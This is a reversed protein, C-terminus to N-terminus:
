RVGQHRDPGQRPRGARERLRIRDPLGLRPPRPRASEVARRDADREALRPWGRRRRGGRHGHSRVEAEGGHDSTDPDPRGRTAARREVAVPCWRALAALSATAAHEMRETPNAPDLRPWSWENRFTPM